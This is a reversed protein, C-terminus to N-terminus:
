KGECEPGFGSAISSPVTLKRGCRACRGEHFVEVQELQAGNGFVQGMFWSVAKAIPAERSARAKRGHHYSYQRSPYIQGLYEYDAENDSGNLYSIFLIDREAAPKKRQHGPAAVKITFRKETKKSVITLTANGGEVFRRIETLGSLKAEDGM